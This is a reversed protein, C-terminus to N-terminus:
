MRTGLTGHPEEKGLYASLLARARKVRYKVLPLGIGLIQAVEKQKCGQLFFLVATERIEEPLSRFAGELDLRLDLQGQSGDPPEPLQDLPLAQKRRHLDRCGNAAIVYLYNAAKGYHRYRDLTRFFSEFTDQTVDEADQLEGTHLRCYQLIRPYYKNVFTEVARSDGLRMRQLLLLDTDM